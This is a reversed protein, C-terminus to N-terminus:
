FRTVFGDKRTKCTLHRNNTVQFLDTYVHQIASNRTYYAEIQRDQPILNMVGKREAAEEM